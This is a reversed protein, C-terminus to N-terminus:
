EFTLYKLMRDVQHHAEEQITEGLVLSATNVVFLLGRESRPRVHAL